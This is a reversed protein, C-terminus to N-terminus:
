IYMAIITTEDHYLVFNYDDMIWSDRYDSHNYDDGFIEEYKSILDNYTYLEPNYELSVQYCVNHDDLWFVILGDSISYYCYPDTDPNQVLSLSDGLLRWLRVYQTGIVSSDITLVGDDVSILVSGDTDRVVPNYAVLSTAESANKTRNASLGVYVLPALLLLPIVIAIIIRIWDSSSHNNNSNQAWNEDCPDEPDIIVNDTTNDNEDDIPKFEKGVTVAIDELEDPNGYNKGVTESTDNWVSSDSTNSIISDTEICNAGETENSYYDDNNLLRSHKNLDVLADLENKMEEADRFRNDPNYECAKLVIRILEKSGSIPDPLQEGNFRRNRAETIQNITPPEKGRTLFPYTRGNLLWYLVMGLSYIDAACGYPNGKYVEPSMYDYTGIGKTRDTNDHELTRSVGFDGLKYDGQDSILINQPKIDRHIINNEECTKLAWCIDLGLKIVDAENFHYDDGKLFPCPNLCEMRIFVDWGIGDEHPSISVDDCRVIHPNGKVTMMLQYEKIIDDLYSKYKIAISEKAYGYSFDTAIQQPDNPISIMKMAAYETIGLKTRSIRYVAGYQGRGILEELVWDPWPIHVDFDKM